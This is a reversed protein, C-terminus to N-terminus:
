AHERVLQSQEHMVRQLQSCVWKLRLRMQQNEDELSSQMTEEQFTARQRFEQKSQASPARETAVNEPKGKRLQAEARERAAIEKKLAHAM